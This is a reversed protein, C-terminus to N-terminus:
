GRWETGRDASAYILDILKHLRLQDAPPEAVVQGRVAAAFHALAARHSQVTASDRTAAGSPSADVLRGRVERAVRLPALRASGTSGLLEFWWREETGVYASQLDLTVTFGGKCEILVVAAEEVANAGRGRQLTVAVREVRPFDTFWGALDLLPLGLELLAGGGAEDRRHRWPALTARHRYVGARVGRIAGLDGKRVVADLAQADARFRETNAVMMVRGARAAAALVREVGRAQLAVPRECLVHRGARLASLVHVEHLHNPTCVIVADLTPLDLLEDVDGCVDRVGYRTALTRAKGLDNDCLAAIQVGRMAALLPLHATQAIAGLGLVGIRVPTRVSATSRPMARTPM